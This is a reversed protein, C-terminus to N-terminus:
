STSPAEAALLDAGVADVVGDRQAIELFAKAYRRALRGQPM